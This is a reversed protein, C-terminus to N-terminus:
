ETEAAFTVGIGEVTVVEGQKPFRADGSRYSAEGVPYGSAGAAHGLMVSRFPRGHKQAFAGGNWDTVIGGYDWDFGNFTVPAGNRRVLEALTMGPRVGDEFHWRSHNARVRVTDIRQVTADEGVFVEARRRPDAGFLVIVATSEGEAGDVETREVNAAGFTRRLDDLTMGARILGPLRYTADAALDAPEADAIRAVNALSASHAMEDAREAAGAALSAGIALGGLMCRSTRLFGFPFAATM